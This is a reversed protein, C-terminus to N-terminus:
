QRGSKMSFVLFGLGALTVVGGVIPSLEITRQQEVQAEVPGVDLVTEDKTYSIGEFVLIGIGLVTLIVGTTFAVKM